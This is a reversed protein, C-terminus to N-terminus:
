ESKVTVLDQNCETRYADNIASRSWDFDQELRTAVTRDFYEADKAFHPFSVFLMPIEYEILPQITNYFQEALVFHQDVGKNRGVLGGPARSPHIGKEKARENVNIRSQAADYLNRVPVIALGIPFWQEKLLVPLKDGLAPTKVIRPLTTRNKRNPMRELGARGINGEVKDLHEQGFGTDLGAATFIRMLLTTGARGTGCIVLKPDM